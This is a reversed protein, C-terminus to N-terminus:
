ETCPFCPSGLMLSVRTLPNLLYSMYGFGNGQRTHDHLPSGDSTPAEIGLNNQGLTGTFYTKRPAIL